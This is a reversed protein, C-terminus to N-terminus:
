SKSVWEDIEPIYFLKDFRGLIISEEKDGMALSLMNLFIERPENRAGMKLMHPTNQQCDIFLCGKRKLYHVLGWLACRSAESATHFMSEGFFANGLWIGYLGGVLQNEKWTEVSHAFGLKHLKIYANIMEQNLWTGCNDGRPKACANIVSEFAVNITLPFPNKKLIRASRRSLRFNDPLLLCRPDPSWWLIPDNEMYWPFYGRSYAALLRAPELDGGMCIPDDGPGNAPNPFQTKYWLISDLM